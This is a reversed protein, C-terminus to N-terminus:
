REGVFPDREGGPGRVPADYAATAPPAPTEGLPLVEYQVDGRNQVLASADTPPLAGREAMGIGTERGRVRAAVNYSYIGRGIWHWNVCSLIFRALYIVFVYQIFVINSYKLPPLDERGSKIDGNSYYYPSDYDSYYYNYRSIQLDSVVVAAGLFFIAALNFILLTWLVWRREWRIAVWELVLIILVVVGAILGIFASALFSTDTFGQIITYLVFFWSLKLLCLYIHYARYAKLLRPETGIVTFITWEWEKWAFWTGVALAVEGLAVAGLQVATLIVTFSYFSGSDFDGGLVGMGLNKAKTEAFLQAVHVLLLTNFALLAVVQVTNKKWCADLSLYLIFFGSMTAAVDGPPGEVWLAVNTGILVAFELLSFGLVLAGGISRPICDRAPPM